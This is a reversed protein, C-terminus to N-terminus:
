GFYNCGTVSTIVACAASLRPEIRLFYRSKKFNDLFELQRECAHLLLELHSVSPSILPIDDAYLVIWWGNM